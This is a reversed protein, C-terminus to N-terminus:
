RSSSSTRDLARAGERGQARMRHQLALSVDENTLDPDCEFSLIGNARHVIKLKWDDRKERLAQVLCLIWREAEEISHIELDFLRSSPMEM